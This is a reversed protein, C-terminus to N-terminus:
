MPRQVNPYRVPVPAPHIEENHYTQVTGDDYRVTYDEMFSHCKAEVVSGQRSRDFPDSVRDGEHLCWPWKGECLNFSCDDQASAPAITLSILAITFTKRM